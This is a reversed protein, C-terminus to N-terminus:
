SIIFKLLNTFIMVLIPKVSQLTKITTPKPAASLLASLTVKPQMTNSFLTKRVDRKENVYKRMKQLMFEPIKFGLLEIPKPYPQNKLIDSHAIRNVEDITLLLIQSNRHIPSLIRQQIFWDKDHTDIIYHILDPYKYILRDNPAYDFAEHVKFDFTFLTDTTLTVHLMIQNPRTISKTQFTIPSRKHLPSQDSSLSRTLKVTPEKRKIPPQIFFITNNIFPEIWKLLRFNRVNTYSLFVQDLSNTELTKPMISVEDVTNSERTIGNTTKYSQKANELLDCSM